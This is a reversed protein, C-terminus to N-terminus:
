LSVSQMDACRNHNVCNNKEDTFEGKQLIYPTNQVKTFKVICHPVIAIDM